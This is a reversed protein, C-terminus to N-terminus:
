KVKGRTRDLYSQFAEESIRYGKGIYHAELERDRILGYVFNVHVNLRKAVDQTTM